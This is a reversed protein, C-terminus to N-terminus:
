GGSVGGVVGRFKVGVRDWSIKEAYTRSAVSAVGWDLNELVQLLEDINDIVTVGEFGRAGVRTSIVPIGYSMARAVKLSTGGGTTILNIFAYAKRHLEDLVDDEVHGWLKVNPQTTKVNNGCAGVINIKYDPLLYALNALAQAAQINPGYYSGVFLLNKEKGEALTDPLDTGNPIFHLPATPNYYKRFIEADQESCYTIAKANKVAATELEKVVQEDIGGPWRLSTLFAEANHADYIFPVDGVFPYLWPHELIILDAAEADIADQLHTLDSKCFAPMGDYTFLDKGFLKRSREWAPKGASIFKYTVDGHQEERGEGGWDLGIVTVPGIRELLKVCRQGGGFAPPYIDFPVLAVIKV